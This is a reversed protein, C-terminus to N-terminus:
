PLAARLLPLLLESAETTLHDVDRYMLIDGVIVPCADATCLWDTPDVHVAGTAAAVDREAAVRGPAIARDRRNNCASARSLNRSLCDAAVDSAGPSDSLLVVRKASATLKSVTRQM